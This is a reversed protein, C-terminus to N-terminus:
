NFIMQFMVKDPSEEDVGLDFTYLVYECNPCEIERLTHWESLNGLFADVGMGTWNCKPCTFRHNKYTDYTLQM